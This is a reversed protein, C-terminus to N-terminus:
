RDENKPMEPNFIDGSWATHKVQTTVDNMVDTCVRLLESTIVDHEKVM